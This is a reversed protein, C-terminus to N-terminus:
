NPLLLGFQWQCFILGVAALLLLTVFALLKGTRRLQMRLSDLLEDPSQSRARRFGRKQPLPDPHRPLVIPTGSKVPYGEMSQLCNQCFVKDEATEKGCRLCYMGNGGVEYEMRNYVM